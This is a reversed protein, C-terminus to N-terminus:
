DLWDRRPSDTIEIETADLELRVLSKISHTTPDLVVKATGTLVDRTRVTGSKRRSWEGHPGDFETWRVKHEYAVELKFALTCEGAGFAVINVEAIAAEVLQGEVVEYEEDYHYASLEAAEDWAHNELVSLDAEVAARIKAITEPDALLLETM